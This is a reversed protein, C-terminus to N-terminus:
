AVLERVREVCKYVAEDYKFDKAAKAAFIRCLQAIRAIDPAKHFHQEVAAEEVRNLTDVCANIKKLRPSTLTCAQCNNGTHSHCISCRWINRDLRM